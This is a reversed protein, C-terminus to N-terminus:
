HAVNVGKLVFLKGNPSVLLSEDLVRRSPAFSTPLPDFPSIGTGKACKRKVGCLLCRSNILVRGLRLREALRVRDGPSM